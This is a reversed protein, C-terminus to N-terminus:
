RPAVDACWSSSLQSPRAESHPAHSQRQTGGSILDASNPATAPPASPDSASGVDASRSCAIWQRPPIRSVAPERSATENLGRSRRTQDAPRAHPWGCAPLSAEFLAAPMALRPASTTVKPLYVHTGSRLWHTGSLISLNQMPVLSPLARHVWLMPVKLLPGCNEGSEATLCVEDSQSTKPLLM